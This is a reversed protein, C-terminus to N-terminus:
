PARGDCRGCACHFEGARWRRLLAATDMVCKLNGLDLLWLGPALCALQTPVDSYADRALGPRCYSGETIGNPKYNAHQQDTYIPAGTQEGPRESKQRM